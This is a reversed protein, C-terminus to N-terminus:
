RGCSRSVIFPQSRMSGLYRCVDSAGHRMVIENGGVPEGRARVLGPQRDDVGGPMQRWGPAVAGGFEPLGMNGARHEEVDVLDGVELM